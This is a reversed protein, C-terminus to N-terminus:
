WGMYICLWAFWNSYSTVLNKKAAFMNCQQDSHKCPSEVWYCLNSFHSSDFYRGLMRWQRLEWMSLNIQAIQALMVIVLIFWCGFVYPQCDFHKIWANEWWSSWHVCKRRTYVLLGLYTNVAWCIVDHLQALFGHCAHFKVLWTKELPFHWTQLKRPHFRWIILKSSYTWVQICSQLM